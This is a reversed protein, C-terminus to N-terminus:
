PHLLPNDTILGEASAATLLRQDAAVFVLSPQHAASLQAQADLASALQIADAARLSHHQILTQARTIIPADLQIVLAYQGLYRNLLGQINTGDQATLTTDRVLRWVASLVEVSTISAVISTNGSQAATLTQIWMSGVEPLYRKVLASSDYFYTTM